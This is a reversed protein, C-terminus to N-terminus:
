EFDKEELKMKIPSMIVFKTIENKPDFKDFYKHTTAHSYLFLNKNNISSLFSRKDNLYRVHSEIGYRSLPRKSILKNIERELIMKKGNIIIDYNVVMIKNKDTPKEKSIEVFIMDISDQSKKKLNNRFIKAFKLARLNLIRREFVTQNYKRSRIMQYAKSGHSFTKELYNNFRKIYNKNLEFGIYNRKMYTAQALVSGTGAFPDLVIDRENSSLQIIKAIMDTPLPCFHRIYGNGWSGQIPIDYNWIEEVAKGKPNYREPYKVWWKKLFETNYERIKDTYYKFNKSKSFLLIYEFKKKTRGTNSWPITKNKNWIIIDQLKWGIESIKNSFDFPLLVVEGKRKFTDIIVWLSGNDKTINYVNQFVIKIAELYDEYNQGYGIQDKHGYDKMDYYPPSTITVTVVKKKILENIKRADINHLKNLVEYDNSGIKIKNM